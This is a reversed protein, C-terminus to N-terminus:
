SRCRPFAADEADGRYFRGKSVGRRPRNLSWEPKILADTLMRFGLEMLLNPVRDSHGIPSLMKPSLQRVGAMSPAPVRRRPFSRNSFLSIFFNRSPVTARM